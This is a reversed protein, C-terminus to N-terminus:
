ALLKQYVALTEAAVKETSFEQEVIARGRMGMQRRLVPAEILRRLATALAGPDRVPVLLGNEGHRVADRCGPIDTAVIARECAAAEILAKPVGEHYSPLCVVNAHTLIAPMDERWGWWEVVGSDHWAKLQAIPIASPNGPDSDGVLVSRAVVGGERIRRAAEVYEGVGKDWLMRSALLVLPTGSPEPTPPFETMDVGSGRILVTAAEDVFKDRLFVDRDDSNQFVVRVRPSGMALRYFPKIGARLLSAKIGRAKFVYGLGGVVHVVAPVRVVRAVIGGYLVPKITYHQVLDPKLSRYLRLLAVM